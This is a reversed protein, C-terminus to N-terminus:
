FYDYDISKNMNNMKEGLLLPTFGYINREDVNIALKKYIEILKEIIQTDNGGYLITYHLISNGQQDKARFNFDLSTKTLLFEFLQYRQYRLSYMLINCGFEDHVNALNPYRSLVLIRMTRCTYNEDPHNCLEIFFSMPNSSKLRLSSTTSNSTYTQKSNTSSSMKRNRHHVYTSHRQFQVHSNIDILNM